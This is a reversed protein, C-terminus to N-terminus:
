KTTKKKTSIKIPGHFQKIIRAQREIMEAQQVVTSKPKVPENIGHAIYVMSFAIFVVLAGLAIHQPTFPKTAFFDIVNTKCVQKCDRCPINYPPVDRHKCHSCSKM